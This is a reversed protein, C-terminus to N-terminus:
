LSRGSFNEVGLIVLKGSVSHVPVMPPALAILAPSLLLIRAHQGPRQGYSMQIDRLFLEFQSHLTRQGPFM